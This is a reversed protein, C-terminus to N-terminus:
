CSTVLTLERKEVFMEEATNFVEGASGSVSCDDRTLTIPIM